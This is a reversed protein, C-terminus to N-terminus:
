HGSIGPGSAVAPNIRVNQSPQTLSLITLNDLQTNADRGRIVLQHSGASLNFVKPVFQPSLSTGNGQWSVMQSEFGATFPIQWIMSPDQPEADINVYFSNSTKSTGNAMAQIVYNGTNTISFSYSARGGNTVGTKTAQYIYGNTILFPNTIVGSEAEFVLGTAAVPASVISVALTSQVTMGGDQARLIWVYNSGVTSTPYNFTITPVTNSGSQVVVEPGGNVTYIWQWNVPDGDFDTASGSYQVTTGAFL